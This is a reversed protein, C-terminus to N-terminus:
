ANQAPTQMQERIRASSVALINEISCDALSAIRRALDMGPCSRGTIVRSMHTVTIGLATAAGRVYLEGALDSKRGRRSPRESGLAKSLQGSLFAAAERLTPEHAQQPQQTKM